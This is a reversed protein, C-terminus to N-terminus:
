QIVLSVKNAVQNDVTLTIETAGKGALTSPLLINVQDVGPYSGQAGAYTVPVAVGGIVAKVNALESRGRIGTGYLNLYVQDTAASVNIPIAIFKNAASDFRATQEYSSTGDPKVRQVNAAAFGEGTQNVTFLGPSTNALALVGGAIAEHGDVLAGAGIQGM